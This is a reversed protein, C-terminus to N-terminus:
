ITLKKVPDYRDSKHLTELSTYIDIVQVDNINLFVQNLSAPNVGALHVFNDISEFRTDRHGSDGSTYAAQDASLIDWLVIVPEAGFWQLMESKFQLLSAPGSHGNNFDGDSIILWVPYQQICEVRMQKLAPDEDVWAKLRRSVANLNTVGETRFLSDVLRFTESFPKTRDALKPLKKSKTAGQTYRNFSESVSVQAEDYYLTADSGFTTFMSGLDPNPNKYLMVSAILKAFQIRDIRLGGGADIATGMSGSVDICVMVPVDLKVKDILTQLKVNSEATYQISHGASYLEKLSDFLTTGGTTVKAQKSLAKLEGKDMNKKDEDSLSVLKKMAVEKDAIWQLYVEGMDEGTSLKWKSNTKLISGEKNVIRCQTRYRAGAPLGELWTLFQVKDFAKIKMSSFLHAETLALYKSRFKEYGVYRTNKEYKVIDWSMRDCMAKIMARTLVDKQVTHEKKARVATKGEKDKRYRNTTPVKPLFKAILGLEFETTKPDLVKTAIFEAVRTHDVPLFDHTILKGTKRDTRLQNFFLNEYNTYEAILPLYGYFSEPQNILMWTCAYRFAKRKSHGGQQVKTSGFMNHERNSIDGASFLIIFFLEKMEKTGAQVEEWAPRIINLVEQQTTNEDIVKEFFRQMILLARCGYFPNESVAQTKAQAVKM